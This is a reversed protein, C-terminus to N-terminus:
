ATWRKDFKKRLKRLKAEARRRAHRNMVRMSGKPEGLLEETQATAQDWLEDSSLPSAIEVPKGANDVFGTDDIVLPIGRLDAPNHDLETHIFRGSLAQESTTQESPERTGSALVVTDEPVPMGNMDEWDSVQTMPTDTVKLGNEKAIEKIVTSKHAKGMARELREILEAKTLKSYGTLGEAKAMAKLEAVTNTELKM